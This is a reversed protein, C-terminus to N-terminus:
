KKSVKRGFDKRDQSTDLELEELVQMNTVLRSWGAPDRDRNIEECGLRVEELVELRQKTAELLPAGDGGEGAAGHSEVEKRFARMRTFLSDIRSRHDELLRGLDLGHRIGGSQFM